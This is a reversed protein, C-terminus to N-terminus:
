PIHRSANMLQSFNCSLTQPNLACDDDAKPFAAGCCPSSHGVAQCVRDQRGCTVMQIRRTWFRRKWWTTRLSPIRAKKWGM